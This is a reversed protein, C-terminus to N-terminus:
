DVDLQFSIPLHDSAGRGTTHDFALPVGNRTAVQVPSGEVQVERLQHIRLSDEVLRAPGDGYLGASVAVQDLVHWAGDWYVTGGPGEGSGILEWMPNFIPVNLATYQEVARKGRGRPLRLPETVSRRERVANLGVRVSTDWPEDNFDGLVIVATAAKRRLEALSKMRAGGTPRVLEDKAFKLQGEVLRRCYDAVGIRFPESNSLRRSPWHNTVLVFESGAATAFPVQFLDRTTYRNHVNYSVPPGSLSLIREDYLVVLDDGILNADPDEVVTLYEWGAAAAVDRAASRDEVEALAVIAPQADGAVAALVAGLVAVKAEYAQRTWGDERTADLSRAISSGGVRLLREM